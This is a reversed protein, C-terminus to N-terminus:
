SSLPQASVRSATIRLNNLLSEMKSCWEEFTDAYDKKILKDSRPDKLFVKGDDEGGDHFALPVNRRHTCHNRMEKACYLWCDPNKEYQILKDLEPCEIEM